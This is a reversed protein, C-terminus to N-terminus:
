QQTMRSSATRTSSRGAAVATAIRQLEEKSPEVTPPRMHRVQLHRRRGHRSEHQRASRRDARRAGYVADKLPDIRSQIAMAKTLDGARVAALLDNILGPIVSAFGVLAGDIGQVMSALLYEDHCTLLAKDPAVARIADLDRKYKNMERTGIKFARM